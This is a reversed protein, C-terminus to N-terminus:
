AGPVPGRRRVSALARRLRERQGDDLGARALAEALLRAPSPPSAAAATRRELAAKMAQLKMDRRAAEFAPPSPLELAAELRLLLDDAAPGGRGVAAEGGADRARAARQALAQEWSAPVAPLASWREDFTADDSTGGERSECLALKAEIADCTAEWRRQAGGVQLRRAAERAQRYRSELAAADQRPAPGVRSWQADVDALARAIEGPPTDAGLATLREILAVREAAHTRFQADRAHMAADLATFVGDIASKFRQWLANEMGRALPLSKAHQQWASQLERVRGVLDRGPSGSAAEAALALACEVLQERAAQAAGRAAALPAELRQVAAAMRRALPDRAKHPVTHELPGLKRWETHFHDLASAVTRWTPPGARDRHPTPPPAPQTSAAPETSPATSAASDPAAASESSATPESSEAMEAPEASVVTQAPEAAETSAASGTASQAPEAHADDAPEGDAPAAALPLRVAELAAVLAERAELNKQRVARQQEQQAAVPQYAIKLAADFRQWLSKSTPGGLKDLEKWRARLQDIRESQQKVSLKARRTEGEGATAAALAEAETVLEDRAVSGGWRQWGKLRAFEAQAADIRARLPGAPTGGHLLADVEELRKQTDALHGAAIESEAQELVKALARTREQRAATDREPARDAPRERREARRAQTAEQRARQWQAFRRELAEALAPDALPPLDRWRQAPDPPQV